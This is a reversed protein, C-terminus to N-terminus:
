SVINDKKPKNTLTKKKKPQKVKAKTSKAASCIESQKVFEMELKAVDRMVSGDDGLQGMCDIRYLQSWIDMIHYIKSFNGKRLNTFSDFIVKEHVSPVFNSQFLNISKGVHLSDDTLVYQAEQMFEADGFLSFPRFVILCKDKFFQDDMFMVGFCCYFAREAQLSLNVLSSADILGPLASKYSNDLTARRDELSAAPDFKLPEKNCFGFVLEVKPDEQSLYALFEEVSIGELINKTM